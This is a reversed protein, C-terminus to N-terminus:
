GLRELHLAVAAADKGRTLDHYSVYVIKGTMWGGVPSAAVVSQALTAAEGDSYDADFREARKSIQPVGDGAMEVRLPVEIRGSPWEHPEGFARVGEPLAADVADIIAQAITM